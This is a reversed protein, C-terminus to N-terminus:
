EDEPEVRMLKDLVLYHEYAEKLAPFIEHKEFDPTLVLMRRKVVDMVDIIEDVSVKRGNSGYMVVTSQQKGTLMGSGGGAGGVQIWSTGTYMMTQLTNPDYYTQGTVPATVWTVGNKMAGGLSGSSTANISSLTGGGGGGSGGGGSFGPQAAAVANTIKQSAM